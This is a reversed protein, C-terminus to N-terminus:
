GCSVGTPGSGPLTGILAVVAAPAAARGRRGTGGSIRRRL